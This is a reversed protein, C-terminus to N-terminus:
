PPCNVSNKLAAKTFKVAKDFDLNVLEGRIRILFIDKNSKM